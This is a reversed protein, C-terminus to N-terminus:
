FKREVERAWNKVQEQALAAVSPWTWTHGGVMDVGHVGGLLEDFVMFSM